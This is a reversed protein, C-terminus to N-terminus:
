DCETRVLNPLMIIQKWGTVENADTVEAAQWLNGQFYQWKIVLINDNEIGRLQLM